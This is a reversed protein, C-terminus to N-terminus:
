PRTPFVGASTCIIYNLTLSPMMNDHAGNGGTNSLSIGSFAFDSGTAAENMYPSTGAPPQGLLVQPGPTATTTALTSAFVQHEHAPMQAQTLTVALSGGTQALVRATPALSGNTGNGTGMHVPVRYKLDPLAFNTRGDGGYRTGILSYLAENGSIALKTGDCFHWGSPCRSVPWIKIEGLYSDM